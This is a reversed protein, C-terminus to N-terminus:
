WGELPQTGDGAPHRHKEPDQEEGEGKGVQEEVAWGDAGCKSDSPEQGDKGQYSLFSM